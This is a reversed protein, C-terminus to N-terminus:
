TPRASLTRFLGPPMGTLQRFRRTFASQDCFGISLAIESLSNDTNSLLRVAEDLRVKLVLERPTIHFVRAVKAELQHVTMGGLAALQEIRLPEELHEHIYTLVRALEPFQRSSESSPTTELDRSIGMLGIVERSDDDHLPYKNTLCWGSQRDRYWHLELQHLVARGSRVVRRDQREYCEALAEPFVDTVTKGLLEKKDRVGCREVLSRSVWVYRGSRDKIFFVVSPLDDFLQELPLTTSHGGIVSRAIGEFGLAGAGASSAPLARTMRARAWGAADAIREGRGASVAAAARESSWPAPWRL